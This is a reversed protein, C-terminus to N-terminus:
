GLLARREQDSLFRDLLQPVKNAVLIESRVRRAFDIAGLRFIYKGAPQLEKAGAVLTQAVAVAEAVRSGSAFAGILGAANSVLDWLVRSPEIPIAPRAPSLVTSVYELEKQIGRMERTDSSARLANILTWVRERPEMWENRIEILRRLIDDRTECRSLVISLVAPVAVGLHAQHAERAFEQLDEDLPAFLQEPYHSARDRLALGVAGGCVISAGARLTRTLKYLYREHADHFPDGPGAGSMDRAIARLSDSLELKAGRLPDPGLNDVFLDGYGSLIPMFAVIVNKGGAAIEEETWEEEQEPAPMPEGEMLMSDHFVVARAFREALALEDLSSLHGTLLSRFPYFGEQDCMATRVRQTSISEM